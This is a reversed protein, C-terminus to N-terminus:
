ATEKAGGRRLRGVTAWALAFGAGAVLAALLWVVAWGVPEAVLERSLSARLAATPWYLPNVYMVARLWVSAGAAPFLAGSLLWMPMLVLNMVGHFGQSSDIRWAAALGLGNIAVSIAALAMVALVFGM